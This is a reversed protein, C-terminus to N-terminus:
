RGFCGCSDALTKGLGLLLRLRLQRFGPLEQPLPLAVSSAVQLLSLGGLERLEKRLQIVKLHVQGLRLRTGVLMLLLEHRPHNCRLCLIEACAQLRLELLRRLLSSREEHLAPLGEDGTADGLHKQFGETVMERLGSPGLLRKKRLDVAAGLARLEALGFEDGEQLRDWVLQGSRVQGETRLLTGGDEFVEVGITITGQRLRVEHSHKLLSKDADVADGKRVAEFDGLGVGQRLELDAIDHLGQALGLGVGVQADRTHLHLHDFISSRTPHAHLAVLPGHVQLGECGVEGECPAEVLGHLPCLHDGRLDGVEHVRLAILEPDALLTGEGIGLELQLLDSRLDTDQLGLQLLQLSLDDLGLLLM